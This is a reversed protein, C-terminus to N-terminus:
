IQHWGHVGPEFTNNNQDSEWNKSVHSVRDAKKYVLGEVWAPYEVPPPPTGVVQWNTPPTSTNADILSEYDMKNYTVRDGIKYADSTGKPKRWRGYNEGPHYVPLPQWLTTSKEPDQGTTAQHSKKCGYAIGNYRVGQDRSYYKAPNWEDSQRSYGQLEVIWADANAVAFSNQEMMALATTKDVGRQTLTNFTKKVDAQDLANYKLSTAM